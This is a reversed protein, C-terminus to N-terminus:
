AGLITKSKGTWTLRVSHYLNNAQAGGKYSYGPEIASVYGHIVIGGDGERELIVNQDLLYAVAEACLESDLRTVQNTDVKAYYLLIYCTLDNETRGRGGIGALSRNTLGSEVCLTPTTGIRKQDGYLIQGDETVLAVKNDNLLALIRQAVESPM